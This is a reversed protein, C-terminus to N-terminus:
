LRELCAAAEVWGHPGIGAARYIGALNMDAWVGGPKKRQKGPSGSDLELVRQVGQFRVSGFHETYRQVEIRM